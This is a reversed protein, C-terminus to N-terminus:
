FCIPYSVKLGKIVYCRTRVVELFFGLLCQPSFLFNCLWHVKFYFIMSNASTKFNAENRITSKAKLINVERTFLYSVVRVQINEKVEMGSLPLRPVSSIKSSIGRITALVGVGCYFRRSRLLLTDRFRRWRRMEVSTKLKSLVMGVCIVGKSAGPFCAQQFCEPVLLFQEYRAIEGKGM